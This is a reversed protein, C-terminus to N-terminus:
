IGVQYSTSVPQKNLIQSLHEDKNAYAYANESKHEGSNIAAHWKICIRTMDHINIHRVPPVHLYGIFYLLVNKVMPKTLKQMLICYHLLPTIITHTLYAIRQKVLMTQILIM